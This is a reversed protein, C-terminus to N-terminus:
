YVIFYPTYNVLREEFPVNEWNNYIYSDWSEYAGNITVILLSPSIKNHMELAQVPTYSNNDKITAVYPSKRLTTEVWEQQYLWDRLESYDEM